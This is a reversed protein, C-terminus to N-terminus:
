DCSNLPISQIKKLDANISFIGYDIEFNTIIGEEHLKAHMEYEPKGSSSLPDFYALSVPWFTNLNLSDLFLSSKEIKKEGLIATVLRYSQGNESGIFIESNFIKKNEKASQILQILHQMPFRVKDSLKVKTETDTIYNAFGGNSNLNAYGSFNEEEDNVIEKLEFEFADGSFTEFTSWSSVLQSNSGNEFEFLIAFDENIKWGLCKEELLYISKGNIGIIKAKNNINGLTINYHALHSQIAYSYQTIVLFFLISFFLLRRM